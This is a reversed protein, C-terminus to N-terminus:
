SNNTTPVYHVAAFQSVLDSRQELTYNLFEGDPIALLKQMDKILANPRRSWSDEEQRIHVFQCTTGDIFVSIAPIMSVKGNMM